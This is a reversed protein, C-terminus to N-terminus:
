KRFVPLQYKFYYELNNSEIFQQAQPFYENFIKTM